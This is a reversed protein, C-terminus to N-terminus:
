LSIALIFDGVYEYNTVLEDGPWLVLVKFSLLYEIVRDKTVLRNSGIFMIVAAIYKYSIKEM